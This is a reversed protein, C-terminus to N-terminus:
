TCLTYVEIIIKQKNLCNIFLYPFKTICDERGHGPELVM